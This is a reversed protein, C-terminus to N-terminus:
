ETSSNIFSCAILNTALAGPVGTFDALNLTVSNFAVGSWITNHLVASTLIAGLWNSATLNSGTAVMSTCTTHAFNCSTFNGSLTSSTMSVNTFDCGTFNGTLTASGMSTNVFTCATFNGTFSASTLGSNTFDCGVFDGSFVASTFTGDKFCAGQFRGTFTTGVAECYLFSALDYTAEDGAHPGEYTNGSITLGTFDLPFAAGTTAAPQSLITWNAM